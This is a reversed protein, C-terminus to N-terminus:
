DTYLGIFMTWAGCRRQLQAIRLVIISTQFSALLAAGFATM